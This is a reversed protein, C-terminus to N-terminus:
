HRQVKCPFINQELCAVTHADLVRRRVFAVLVPTTRGFDDADLFTTSDICEPVFLEDEDDDEEEDDNKQVMHSFYVTARMARGKVTFAVVADAM